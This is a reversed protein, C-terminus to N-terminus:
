GGLARNKALEFVTALPLGRKTRTLEFLGLRTFGYLQVPCPDLTVAQQIAVQLATRHKPDRLRLFDIMVQGGINRLKLQRAIEKCVVRNVELPQLGPDANNVDIATLATVAEIVLNVGEQVYVKKDLLDFILTDFDELGGVNVDAMPYDHLAQAIVDHGFGVRGLTTSDCSEVLSCRIQKDKTAPREVQVMLKQGPILQMADNHPLFAEGDPGLDLFYARQAPAWRTVQAVYYDGMWPREDNPQAYIAVIQGRDDLAAALRVGDLIDYRIIM